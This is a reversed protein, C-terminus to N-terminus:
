HRDTNRQRLCGPSRLRAPHLHRDHRKQELFQSNRRPLTRQEDVTWDLQLDSMKESIRSIKLVPGTIMRSYLGSIVLAAALILLLIIPFVRVFSQQLELLQKAEGYVVLTYRDDSDSFSFYYQGSLVPATEGSDAATAQAINSAWENDTEKAPLPVFDGSSNYLEASRIETDAIFQDFLGGSESFPVQKLEAIFKKTREDLIANLRGSYTHPM